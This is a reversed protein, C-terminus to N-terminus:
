PKLYEPIISEFVFQVPNIDELCGNVIVSTSFAILTIFIVVMNGLFVYKYMNKFTNREKTMLLRQFRPSETLEM